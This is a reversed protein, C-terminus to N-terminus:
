EDDVEVRYYTGKGKGARQRSISASIVNPTTNFLKALEKATDAVAVPLQYKDNTVKMYLVM